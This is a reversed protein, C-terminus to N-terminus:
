GQGNAVQFFEHTIYCPDGVGQPKDPAYLQYTTSVYGESDCRVLIETCAAWLEMVARAYSYKVQRRNDM